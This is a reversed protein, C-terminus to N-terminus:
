PRLEERHRAKENSAMGDLYRRGAGAVDAIGLSGVIQREIVGFAVRDFIAALVQGYPLFLAIPCPSDHRINEVRVEGLCWRSFLAISSRGCTIFRGAACTHCVTPGRPSRGEPPTNRPESPTPIAVAPPRQRASATPSAERVLRLGYPRPEIGRGPM